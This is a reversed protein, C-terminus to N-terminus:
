KMLLHGKVMLLSSAGMLYTIKWYFLIWIEIQINFARIMCIWFQKWNLDFQFNMEYPWSCWVTSYCIYNALLPAFFCVVARKWIPQTVDFSMRVDCKINITQNTWISYKHTSCAPESIWEVTLLAWAIKAAIFKLISEDGWVTRKKEAQQHNPIKLFHFLISFCFFCEDGLFFHFLFSVHCSRLSMKEEHTQTHLKLSKIPKRRKQGGMRMHVFHNRMLHYTRCLTLLKQEAKKKTREIWVSRSLISLCLFFRLM